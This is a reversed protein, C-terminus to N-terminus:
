QFHDLTAAVVLLGVMVREIGVSRQTEETIPVYWVTRTFPCMDSTLSVDLFM